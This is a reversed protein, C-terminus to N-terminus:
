LRDSTRPPETSAAADARSGAHWDFTVIGDDGLHPDGAAIPLEGRGFQPPGDPFLDSIPKLRTQSEVAREGRGSLRGDSRSLFSATALSYTTRLSM